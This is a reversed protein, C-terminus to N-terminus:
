YTPPELGSVPVLFGLYFLYIRFMLTGCNGFYGIQSAIHSATSFGAWTVEWTLHPSPINSAQLSPFPLRLCSAMLGSFLREGARHAAEGGQYHDGGARLAARPALYVAPRAIQCDGAAPAYLKPVVVLVFLLSPALPGWVSARRSKLGVSARFPAGTLAM